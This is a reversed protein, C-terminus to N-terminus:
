TPTTARPSRVLRSSRVRACRRRPGSASCWRLLKTASSNKAQEADPMEDMGRVSRNFPHAFAIPIDRSLTRARSLVAWFKGTEGWDGLPKGDYEVYQLQDIFVCDAGADAAKGVLDDISREGEPPQAVSYAGMGDLEESALQLAEQEAKGLAHKIYKWWPVDAAMHLLRRHTEEAPLELPYLFAHKGQRINSITAKVIYWSKGAKPAGLYITIGRQGGFFDDLVPDGLSPGPGAEKEHEYGAWTRDFDGSRFTEGKRGLMDKLERMIPLGVNAVLMPDEQFQQGIKKIRERGEHRMYDARMREILDGIATQPEAWEIDFEDELVAATPPVGHDRLHEAAWEYIETIDEDRILSPNFGESRLEVWAEPDPLHFYLELPYDLAAM